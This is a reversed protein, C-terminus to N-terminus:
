CVDESTVTPGSILWGVKSETAILSDDESKKMNGTILKQATTM